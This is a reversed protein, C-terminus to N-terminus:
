GVHLGAPVASSDRGAERRLRVAVEVDAVCFRDAQVEANRRLEAARAVEPEVVRVRRGLVDLVHFRDLRVHAPEPERPLALRPVCRVVELLEVLVGHVEDPVAIRVDVAQAEVLDPLKAPRQGLRAGVAGVPAARDLLAEIQERPHAGALELIACVHKAGLDVHRRRVDVHAIRNEIADPARMVVPRAVVPADVRHVVERVRRGVRMSSM